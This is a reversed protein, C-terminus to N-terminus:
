NAAFFRDAMPYWGPVASALEGAVGLLQAALLELGTDRRALTTALGVPVTASLERLRTFGGPDPNAACYLLASGWRQCFEASDWLNEASGVDIVVTPPGDIVWGRRTVRGVVAVSQQGCVRDIVSGLPGDAGVIAVAGRDATERMGM